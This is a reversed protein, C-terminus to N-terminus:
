GADHAHGLHVSGVVGDPAILIAAALRLWHRTLKDVPDGVTPVDLPRRAALDRM